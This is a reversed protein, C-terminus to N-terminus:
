VHLHKRISVGSGITGVLAGLLLVAPFLIVFIEYAPRFELFDILPMADEVLRTARGYGVWVLAMPVISGIIGILIGEIVFPWRIFWDTAGVFKMINIEAQRANVTIRITNTIIIVSVVFLIFILAASVWRVMNSINVVMRAINQDQRIREIGLPILAELGRAVDDHYRLSTIEINFSRPFIDPPMGEFIGPDEFDAMVMEFAQPHSIYRVSTINNIALIEDHLQQLGAADVDNYVFVTIGIDGELRNLFFEINVALCYFVAVILMCSAVTLISAISMLRNRILGLIAEGLFYRSRRFSM